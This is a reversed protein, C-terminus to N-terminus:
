TLGLERLMHGLKVASDYDDYCRGDTLLALLRGYGARVVEARYDAILEELEDCVASTTRGM